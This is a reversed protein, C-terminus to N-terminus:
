DQESTRELGGPRLVSLGSRRIRVATVSGAGFVGQMYQRYDDFREQPVYAQITGEFGGGHVRCAGRGDLFRETLTLALAIGQTRPTSARLCNQLRRWSSDGSASVLNLYEDVRNRRLAAAMSGVQRNEEVFHIARLVARDGAKLRLQPLARVIEKVSLGRLYEQGLLLAVARMEETVAAYEPTLGAHDGGTDVVALRYGARTFDFTIRELKPDSPHEFDIHLIGGLAGALQDMFGCPKGFFDNEAQKAIGALDIAAAAGGNFLGNLIGGMLNAFAASSSLGSGPLVTSDVCACFGGLQYGKEALGAAVGRVLSEPRGREAPRPALDSLDARILETFGASQIAVQMGRVPAAAAVCDLHVAAALVRGHNHDTHNGGLETRGPSIIVAASDPAFRTEMGKFLKGYRAKQGSLEARGYLSTLDADLNGSRLADIYDGLPNTM